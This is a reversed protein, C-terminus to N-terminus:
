WEHCQHNRIQEVEYEVEGSILDPPPRSYNARHSGTEVYPTLLSAHFMLHINWQHPLKLQYAVPSIVRTIQFPGHHKPALKIMGHPLPLNKAELWVKQGVKWQTEPIGISNATRNIAHAAMVRCEHLLRSQEEALHNNGSSSQEPILEPELGILLQNPSYHTTSNRANNHVITAVALWNSWDEQNAM